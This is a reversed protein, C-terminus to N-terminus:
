RTGGTSPGDPRRYESPRVHRLSTAIGNLTESHGVILLGGPRLLREIETVLAQRGARDFYIMVNRCFVADLPGHMPFPPKVLNLRAFSVRERLEPRVEYEDEDAGPARGLRAFYRDRFLPPVKALQAKAYRGARARALVQTSIDTALLKWDVARGAVTEALTIALTYPEEGSSSAACWIRLRDAGAALREELHARLHEFHEPERYFSTFNTSIADLFQVLEDGSQDRELFSLYEAASSLGLARLRKGVRALVLAEKGDRLDIGAQEYALARFSRFLAPDM